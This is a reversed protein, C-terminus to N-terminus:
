FWHCSRAFGGIVLILAVTAVIWVVNRTRKPLPQRSYFGTQWHEIKRGCRPCTVDTPGVNAYCYPCEKMPAPPTM